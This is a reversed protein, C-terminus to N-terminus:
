SSTDPNAPLAASPPKPKKTLFDCVHAVCVGFFFYALYFSAYAALDYAALWGAPPVHTFLEHYVYLSTLFLVLFLVLRSAKGTKTISAAILAAIMSTVFAATAYDFHWHGLPRLDFVKLFRLLLLLAPSAVAPLVVEILRNM